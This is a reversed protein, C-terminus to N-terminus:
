ETVAPYRWEPDEDDPVYQGSLVVEVGPFKRNWAAVALLMPDSMYNHHLVLRKLKSIKASKLLAKAGEDSLTGMSLDLETLQDMLPSAVVAAAIEDTIQSNRLALVKLGPFPNANLLPALTEITTNGGYDDVGLWLELHWLSPLKATLVQTVVDAGLGGSQITLTTLAPHSLSKLALKSAGRVTFETLTPFAMILPAVDTQIIWSIECDEYTMDGLFLAALKPLRGKSTILTKIAADPGSDYPDEWGGIVLGTTKECGTEGTYASILGELSIKPEYVEASIRYIQHELDALGAGPKYNVVQKGAYQSVYENITM